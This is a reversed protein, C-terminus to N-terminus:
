INVIKVPKNKSKATLIINKTIDNKGNWFVICCDVDNVFEKNRAMLSPGLGLSTNRLIRCFNYLYHIAYKTFMMHLNEDDTLVPYVENKTSVLYKNLEKEFVKYDKFDPDGAIGLRFKSVKTM